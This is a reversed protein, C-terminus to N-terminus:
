YGYRHLNVICNFCVLATFAQLEKEMVGDCERMLCRRRDPIGRHEQDPTRVLQPAPLLNNARCSCTHPPTVVRIKKDSGLM